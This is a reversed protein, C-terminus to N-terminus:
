HKHTAEDHLPGKKRSHNPMGLLSRTRIMEPTREDSANRVILDSDPEPETEMTGHQMWFLSLLAEKDTRPLINRWRVIRLGANKAASIVRPVWRAGFVLSFYGDPAMTRAAAICYEEVGGRLEFRCYAKQLHNSITGENAPLYPPSGTVLDFGKTKNPWIYDRFDAYVFQVREQLANVALSQNALKVSLLQAEVGMIHAQRWYWALMMGVSGIGSGLDLINSPTRPMNEIAYAATLVDDTSFRHGEKLQYIQWDGSLYDLSIDYSDLDFNDSPSFTM